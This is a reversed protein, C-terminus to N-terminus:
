DRGGARASRFVAAGPWWFNYVSQADQAPDFATM